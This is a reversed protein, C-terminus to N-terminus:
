PVCGEGGKNKLRRIKLSENLAQFVTNNYKNRTPATVFQWFSPPM